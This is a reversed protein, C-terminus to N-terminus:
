RGRMLLNHCTVWSMRQLNDIKKKGQLSYFIKRYFASIIMSLKHLSLNLYHFLSSNLISSFSKSALLFFLSKSAFFFSFPHIHM